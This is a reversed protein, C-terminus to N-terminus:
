GFYCRIRVQRCSLINGAVTDVKGVDGGFPDHIAVGPKIAPLGTTTATGAVQAWSSAPATLAALLLASAALRM